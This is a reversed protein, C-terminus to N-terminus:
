GAAEVCLLTIDDHLPSDTRALRDAVSTIRELSALGHYDDLLRTLGEVGLLGGEPLQGETVGDTFVYFSGAGLDLETVSVHDDTVLRTDIGLPPTEAPLARYGGDPERYLPPEHGANAFRLRGSRRDYEGALMTVFMGRTSTECLEQNIVGLLRGPDSETKCLCHFLSAAKAMLLAANIGKGSVDGVSFCIRDGDLDVIDFFDGSVDRAPVNVGCVPFLTDRRRPLFRRQIEAALELERRVREQEILATTLRANIIALAASAALVQLAHQDTEDFLGDGDRKNLLEIAGVRRDKVSLPACLISRTEFGTGQDIIRAFDPDRRVDRVMQSRNEQVTRGVIGSDVSIRLGTIDTPGACAQCVLQADNDELLFLSAAEAGVFGAIRSVAKQLTEGIDLTTAFEQGMVALVELYQSFGSPTSLTDEAPVSM